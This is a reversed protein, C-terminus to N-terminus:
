RTNFQKIDSLNSEIGRDNVSTMAFYYNSNNTIGSDQYNVSVETRSGDIEIVNDLREETLGYYLRYATIEGEAIKTGGVNESPPQWSLTLSARANPDAGGGGGCSTLLFISMMSALAFKVNKYLLCKM